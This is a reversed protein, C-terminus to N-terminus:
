KEGEGYVTEFRNTKYNFKIFGTGGARWDEYIDGRKDRQKQRYRRRQDEVRGKGIEGHKKPTPAIYRNEDIAKLRYWRMMAYADRWQNGAYMKDIGIRLLRKTRGDTLGLKIVSKVLAKRERRMMQIYPLSSKFESLSRAEGPRFGDNRLAEFRQNIRKKYRM